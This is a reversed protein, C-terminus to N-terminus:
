LDAVPEASAGAGAVAVALIIALAPEEIKGEEARKEQLLARSVVVLFAEGCRGDVKEVLFLGLGVFGAPLGSIKKKAKQRVRGTAKMTLAVAVSRAYVGM